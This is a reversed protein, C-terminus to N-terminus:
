ENVIKADNFGLNIMKALISKAENESSYPGTLLVTFDGSKRTKTVYNQKRLLQLKEELFDARSLAALRVYYHHQLRSKENVAETNKKDINQIFEDMKQDKDEVKQSHSVQEAAVKQQAGQSENESYVIEVQDVQPKVLPASEQPEVFVLEVPPNKDDDDFENQTIFLNLDQYSDHSLNSEDDTVYQISTQNVQLTKAYDAKDSFFKPLFTLILLFFFLGGILQARRRQTLKLM